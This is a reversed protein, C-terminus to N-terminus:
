RVIAVRSVQRINNQDSYDFQYLGDAAVVIATKNKLIVDTPEFSTITKLLQLNLPDSANYVKLGKSGDCIFLLDGDKALGRPNGMSYIKLLSPSSLNSINLVDLENTTGQCANGTRLTVFANQGDAIVPDCATMHSFQSLQSPSAPNSLSYIFMGTSSGIFLNNNFPYITEINWPLSKYSVEQPNNETSITFTHIGNAAIAYLYDNVITFRAMSGGQGTAPANALSFTVGTASIYRCQYCNNWGRYTECNVVTDKEIYDVLVTASDTSYKYSPFVHPTIKETRVNLPNSIDLVVLDAYSDAYLHGDKVAIDVNGPINIFSVNQPASPNANNIVHVGKDIENVFIYNGYLYIKGTHQLARAVGSQISARIDLVSKYVPVYIKYSSKCEDKVCGSVLLLLAFASFAVPSLLKKM